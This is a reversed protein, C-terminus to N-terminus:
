KKVRSGDQKNLAVLGYSMAMRFIDTRSLQLGPDSRDAAIKAAFSPWSAPIRMTVQVTDKKARSM